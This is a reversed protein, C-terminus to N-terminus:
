GVASLLTLTSDPVAAPGGFVVGATVNSGLSTLYGSVSTPLGGTPRVLLMPAPTATSGEFTGGSLADPFNVGTAAGFTTADPFFRAAVAASTEYEDQGYILTATPDAGGAAAPGGIAYRTDGPHANLYAATEPSQTAGATLLIAGHAKIAAPVASLADAFKLGTAEFITSPDGLQHAVAVATAYADQGYIRKVDYGLAALAADVASSIAGPGGLIYVTGTPPLVRKIEALVRADLQTSRAAGPTILLPGNVAAALPGGALADSFRDSRALVVASASGAQPFQAASVAVSTGVADSGFLRTLHIGPPAGGGGAAGGGGGGGGGSGGGPPTTTVGAFSANVGATSRGATVSVPSAATPDPVGDYWQFQCPLSLSAPCYGFGVSYDGTALQLLTYNGNGDTKTTTGAAPLDSIPFTSVTVGALPHGASDTVHGTITGGVPLMADIGTTAGRVVSVPTASGLTAAADYIVPAYNTHFLADCSYYFYLFYTGPDLNEIDYTGDAATIARPDSLGGTAPDAFMVCVNSLPQGSSGTVTGSISGVVVGSGAIGTLSVLRGQGANAPEGPSGLPALEDTFSLSGYATESPALPSYTVTVSCSDGANLAGACTNTTIAFETHDPGTIAFGTPTDTAPGDNHITISRSVPTGPPTVFQLNNASVTRERYPQTSNYSIAGFLASTTSGECHSEFRASFTLVGGNTDYTADDVVFRGAVTNCGRGDGFIDLGPHGTARFDFRQAGEYTGPTLPDGAPAALWVAFSDGTSNSVTFTPYGGRLGDYRVTDFSYTEGAGIWDNGQSDFFAGTHTTAAHAAPATAMTAASGALVVVGATALATL